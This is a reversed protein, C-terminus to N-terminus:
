GFVFWFGAAGWRCWLLWGSGKRPQVWVLRGKVSLVWRKLRGYSGEDKAAAVDEDEEGRIERMGRKTAGRRQGNSERETFVSGVAWKMAM